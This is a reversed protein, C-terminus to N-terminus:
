ADAEVNWLTGIPRLGLRQAVGQSSLNEHSTSYFLPVQRPALLAAWAATAAAALGRGRFAPATWTGAEAGHVSVPRPTHCISVVESDVVVMAWPGLEGAVLQAWEQTDWGGPNADAVVAAASEDTSRVLGATDPVTVGPPIVYSPGHRVEVAPFVDELHRRAALVAAPATSGDAAGPDSAVAEEIRHATGAPVAGGALVVCGDANAGIIVAQRAHRAHPGSEPWLVELESRLLALDETPM